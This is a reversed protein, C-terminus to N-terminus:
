LLIGQMEQRPAIAKIEIGQGKRQAAKKEYIKILIKGFAIVTKKFEEFRDAKGWLEGEIIALLREKENDLEPAHERGWAFIEVRDEGPAFAAYENGRKVARDFIGHFYESWQDSM